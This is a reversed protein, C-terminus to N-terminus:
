GVFLSAAEYRGDAAAISLGKLLGRVTRHGIEDAWALPGKPWNAGKVMAIDIDDSSAVGEGWATAAENLVAGIIRAFVYQETSGARTAAGKGAFAEIAGGLLPSVQFSRREVAYAPLPPGDIHSYFGRGTKRGLYGKRVLGKQIAHPEFRTPRDMREWISTTAAVNVDLGILDMLEFPGMRLGGLTRMIADIEDVGAVGEELLRLAELYYGRGVRNVIFGPTDKTLVPTKGWSRATTLALDVCAGDTEEGSVIEVLEMIPVPNFFHMGVVRSPDDLYQAIQTISLSSTNTALVTSQPTVAQLEKLVRQKVELDEVVAEIVLEVDNVDAIADSTRIKDLIGDRRSRDTGGKEVLRDLRRSIEERSRRLIDNDVDVLLVECRCSAAVQAIGRGMTGAGVVALRTVGSGAVRNAAVNHAMSDTYGISEDVPFSRCAVNRPAGTV